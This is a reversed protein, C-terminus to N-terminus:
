QREDEPHDHSYQKAFDKHVLIEARRGGTSGRWYRYITEADRLTGLRGDRVDGRVGQFARTLDSKPLGDKGAAKIRDAM